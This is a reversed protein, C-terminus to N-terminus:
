WLWVGVLVILVGSVVLVIKSGMQGGELTEGYGMDMILHKIGAVLHYIISGLIGWIILTMFFGDLCERMKEFSEPSAMSMDFAWLLIPIALFMLVGSIRHMISTIGPLPLDYQLLLPLDINRPRKDKM